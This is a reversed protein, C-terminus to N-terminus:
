QISDQAAMVVVAMILEVIVLIKEGVVVVEVPGGGDVVGYSGLTQQFFCVFKRKTDGLYLLLFHLKM